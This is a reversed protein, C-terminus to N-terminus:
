SQEDFLADIYALTPGGRTAGLARARAYHAEHTPARFEEEGPQFRRGPFM